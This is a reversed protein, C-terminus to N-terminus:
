LVGVILLCCNCYRESAAIFSPLYHACSQDLNHQGSKWRQIFSLLIDIYWLFFVAPQICHYSSARDEGLAMTKKWFRGEVVSQASVCVLVHQCCHQRQALADSRRRLACLRHEEEDQQTNVVKHRSKVCAKPLVCHCCHRRRDLPKIRRSPAGCGATKKKKRKAAHGFM